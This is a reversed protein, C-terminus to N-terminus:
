RLVINSTNEIYFKADSLRAVKKGHVRLNEITVGDINRQRDFGYFISYPFLGDIIQINKLVVKSIRGRFQAHYDKNAAPVALVGDWAGNLYLRRREEPDRTGDESYQSRFIAFDFLKQRVDEIRIDQFVV